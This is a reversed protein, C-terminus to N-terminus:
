IRTEPKQYYLLSTRLGGQGSGAQEARGLTGASCLPMDARRSTEGLRGLTSDMDTAGPIDGADVDVRANATVRCGDRNEEVHRENGHTEAAGGELSLGFIPAPTMTHDSSVRPTSPGDEGVVCM